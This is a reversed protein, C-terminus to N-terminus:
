TCIAAGPVDSSTPRGASQRQVCRQPADRTPSSVTYPRIMMRGGDATVRFLFGGLLRFIGGYPRIMMRGGNATGRFPFGGLLRFIGGYPRIMMRGGDATVRFPFGGLLRFIGGYPRIMMRGGDATVQVSLSGLRASSMGGGRVPGGGPSAM